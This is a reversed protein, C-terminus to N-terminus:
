NSVEKTKKVQKQMQKVQNRMKEIILKFEPEDQVSELTPDILAMRYDNWGSLFADNLWQLAKVHQGQIAYIRGLELKNRYYENGINIAEVISKETKRILDSALTSDNTKLYSYCLYSPSFGIPDMLAHIGLNMGNVKKLFKEATEYNDRIVEIQGMMALLGPDDPTIEIGHHVADLAQDLERRRIYVGSLSYYSETFDPQMLIAQEIYKFGMEDFDLDAYAEGLQVYAIPFLPALTIAKEFLPIQKDFKGIRGYLVGLNNIASFFSPNRKIAELNADIANNDEGKLAYGLALTKYGEALDPDLEIAKRGLMITTDLWNIPWQFRMVRQGYADGLGAYAMAYGSDLKIAEKFFNIAIENDAKRLLYYYSRGKLYFDYAEINASPQNEIQRIEKSSLQIKLNKAISQAVESQVVFVESIDRDYVEAWINKGTSIDILQATIRVKNGIRRVSGELITNVNLEDAILDISLDTNKYKMISFRSITQIDEIKSLQIIIDDTIGESFYEDDKDNGMNEFPLVAITNEVPIFAIKKEHSNLKYAFIGAIIALVLLISHLFIETRSIKQPGRKGHFWAIIISGPIGAIILIMTADFLFPSLQYRDIFLNIVQIAVWSGGLYILLTRLVKRDRLKTFLNNFKNNM